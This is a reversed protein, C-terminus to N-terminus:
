RREIHLLELVAAAMTRVGTRIALDAAPAFEPSHLAPVNTGESLAQSLVLPDTAGLRYILSPIQGQLSFRSFDESGMTPLVEKVLSSGIESELVAAIRATLKPDNYTAPLAEDARVVVHPLRDQPMGAAMATFHAIREISVLVRHQVEAKYTRVTLALSVEEPIINRKTGGHIAGVTVVAQDM